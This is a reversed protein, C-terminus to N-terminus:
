PLRGKRNQLKIRIKGSLPFTKKGAQRQALLSIPLTKETFDTARSDQKTCFREKTSAKEKDARDNGSAQNRTQV